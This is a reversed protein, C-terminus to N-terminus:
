QEQMSVTFRNVTVTGGAANTSVIRAFRIYKAGITNTLKTISTAAATSDPTVLISYQSAVWDTGNDSTDVSFVIPSAAAANTGTVTLQFIALQNINWGLVGSGAATNTSLAPVTTIPLLPVINQQASASFAFALVMAAVAAKALKVLPKTKKEKCRGRVVLVASEGEKVVTAKFADSAATFLEWKPNKIIIAQRM